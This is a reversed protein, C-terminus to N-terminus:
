SQRGQNLLAQQRLAESPVFNPQRAWFKMKRKCIEMEKGAQHKEAITGKQIMFDLFLFNRYHDLYCKVANCKSPDFNSSGIETRVSVRSIEYCFM